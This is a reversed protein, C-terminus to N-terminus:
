MKLGRKELLPEVSPEAGRFRKYMEMPDDSGGAELIYKRFKEATERDFLGNEKFAEFADSDLIEAWIYSYYGSSYGGAFIHRFYPSRYRVVIEPMLDIRNLSQKEFETADQFETTKLTHWDMDLFSAALYEVTEFGQNFHRAKEIRAILEDPIPEGTEYHRAYQKMVKPHTAWNEMIQSPLEVFDRPVSTGSVRNYTVDSLLGHLAHGFEHFLTSVEDLSLLAPTDATPKSFNCVNCVIPTKEKGMVRSQGRYENMWAGGRKSARPFYDTYFIGVHSGDRDLVEFVEVDKHYVPIDNRKVFELGFLKNAVEFAGARVKELQFYPRLEADDLNYKSKKLKEAYFWWDWPQLQFSHGEKDILAQLDKAEMHARKLAPEWLQELRDYVRDPTKAMNKELVFHAHTEYGLLDAKEVRLSAMESLIKKNDLKDGHDGQDIYAKFMKERLDRQTSYQLFPILSPKSITFVWKGEHGREKATEAATKIVGQPLGDLEAENDIVLEFRNVEKLVNEGFTLSLLSLKENIERLRAQQQDDLLAGNRVFDQYMKELVTQQEGTLELSARKDYIVKIREFLAKNMLIDDSHKSLKPSMEKAVAQLEDSTKASLLNYFVGQVRDMLEGSADLADITITFTAPAPNNAIADIEKSHEQMGKEFAPVYHEIEIQEFPPTAFPTDWTEFFPNEAQVGATFTLHIMVLGTLYLARQKM